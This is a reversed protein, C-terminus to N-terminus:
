PPGRHTLPMGCGLQTRREVFGSALAPHPENGRHPEEVSTMGREHLLRRGLAVRHQGADEDVRGLETRGLVEAAIRSRRLLVRVAQGGVALGIVPWVGMAAVNLMPRSRRQTLFAAVLLIGVLINVVSHVESTVVILGVVLALLEDDTFRVAPLLAGAELRVGGNNGPMSEVPVDLELLRRLDRRVTRPSVGLEAALAETTRVGRGQLAEVLDFLRKPLSTPM